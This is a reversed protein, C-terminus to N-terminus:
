FNSARIGGWWNPLSPITSWAYRGALYIIEGTSHSVATTNVGNFAQGRAVTVTTGSSGLCRMYELTGTGGQGGIAIMIGYFIPGPTSGTIETAASTMTITTQTANIATSLPSSAAPWSTAFSQDAYIYPSTTTTFPRIQIFELSTSWNVGNWSVDSTLRGQWPECLNTIGDTGVGVLAELTRFSGIGNPVQSLFNNSLTWQNSRNFSWTTNGSLPVTFDGPGLIWLNQIYSNGSGAPYSLQLPANFCPMSGGLHNSTVQFLYYQNLGGSGTNNCSTIQTVTCIASNGSIISLQPTASGSNAVYNDDYGLAFYVTSDPALAPAQYFSPVQSGQGGSMNYFTFNQTSGLTTPLQTSGLSLRTAMNKFVQSYDNPSVGPTGINVGVRLTKALSDTGFASKGVYNTVALNTQAEGVGNSSFLMWGAATTMTVVDTSAIMVGTPLPIILSYASPDIWPIVTSLNGVSTGNKYITPPIVMYNPYVMTGSLKSFVAVSEGSSTVYANSIITNPTGAVLDEIILGGIHVGTTATLGPYQFVPGVAVIMSGITIPWTPHFSQQNWTIGDTSYFAYLTCGGYAPLVNIKIYYLTGTTPNFTGNFGPTNSTTFGNQFWDSGTAGTFTSTMFSVNSTTTSGYPSSTYLTIGCMSQTTDIKKLTYIISFAGTPLTISSLQGALGGGTGYLMGNGDLAISGATGLIHNADNPWTAGSDSTHATLLTGASGTFTDTLYTTM